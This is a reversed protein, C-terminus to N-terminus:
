AQITPAFSQASALEANPDVQPTRKGHSIRDAVKQLEDDSANPMSQSLSGKIAASVKQPDVGREQAIDSISKGTSMEKRLDGPDMGLAGAAADVAKKHGGHAHHGHPHSAGTVNPQQQQQQQYADPTQAPAQAPQAGQTPSVGQPGQVGQPQQGQAQQVAQQFAKMADQPSIQGSELAKKLQDVMKALPSDAQGGQQLQQQAGGLLQDVSQASTPDPTSQASPSPRISSQSPFSIAV